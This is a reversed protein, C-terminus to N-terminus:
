RCRSAAAGPRAAGQDRCAQYAVEAKERLAMARELAQQYREVTYTNETGIYVSRALPTEGFRPLTVAFSCDRM